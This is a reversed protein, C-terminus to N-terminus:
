PKEPKEPKAPGAPKSDTKEAPKAPEDKEISKEVKDAPKDEGTKEVPPPPNVPVPVGPVVGPPQVMAPLPGTTDLIIPQANGPPNPNLDPDARMETARAKTTVFLVNGVRVPKLGAM